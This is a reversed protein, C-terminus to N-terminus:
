GTTVRPSVSTLINKSRKDAIKDVDSASVEHQARIEGHM